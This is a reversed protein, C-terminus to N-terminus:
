NHSGWSATWGVAAAPWNSLKLNGKTGLVRLSCDNAGAVGTVLSLSCLIGENGSGVSENTLQLCAWVSKEAISPEEREVRGCVARVKYDCSELLLIYHSAVRRLLEAEEPRCAEGTPIVM